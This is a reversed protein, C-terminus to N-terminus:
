NPQDEDLAEAEDIISLTAIEYSVDAAELAADRASTLESIIEDVSNGFQESMVSGDVVFPSRGIIVDGRRGQVSQLLVEAASACVELRRALLAMEAAEGNGMAARLTETRGEDLTTGHATKSGETM